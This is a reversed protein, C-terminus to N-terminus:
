YNFHADGFRYNHPLEHLWLLFYIGDAGKGANAKKLLPIVKELAPSLNTPIKHYLYMSEVNSLKINTKTASLSERSNTPILMELPIYDYLEYVYKRKFERSFLTKNGEDILSGGEEFFFYRQSIDHFYYLSYGRGSFRQVFSSDNSYMKESEFDIAGFNQWFPLVRSSRGNKFYVFGNVAGAYNPWRNQSIRIVGYISQGDVLDIKCVAMVEQYDMAGFTSISFVLLLLLKFKM